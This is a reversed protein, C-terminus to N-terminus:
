GGGIARVWRPLKLGVAAAYRIVADRYRDAQRRTEHLRAAFPDWGAFDHTRIAKALSLYTRGNQWFGEVYALHARKLGAPPQLGALMNSVSRGVQGAREARRIALAREDDSSKQPGIANVARNARDEARNYRVQLPGVVRLYRNLVREPAGIAKSAPAASAKRHNTTTTTDGINCGVAIGVVGILVVIPGIKVRPLAHAERRGADLRGGPMVGPERHRRGIGV